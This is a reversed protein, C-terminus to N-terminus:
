LKEIEERTLDTLEIIYDLPINKAKMKQALNIKEKMSGKELGKEFGEKLGKERGDNYGCRKMCEIDRLMGARSEVFLQFDPDDSLYALEEKAQKLYKNESM